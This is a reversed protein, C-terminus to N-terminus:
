VILNKKCKDGHYRAYLNPKMEIGCHPCRLNARNAYAEKSWQRRKEREEDTLQKGYNPHNAGKRSKEKMVISLTQKHEESLGGYSPNNKGQKSISQKLKTEESLKWTKGYCPHRDGVATGGGGPAYNYNNNDKIYELNVVQSEKLLAEERTDFFELIERNFNQKGYKQISQKILTGSGLYGDNIDNTSHVGIYTKKNILNTIKYLFHWHKM